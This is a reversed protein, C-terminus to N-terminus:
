YTRSVHRESLSGLLQDLTDAEACLQELQAPTFQRRDARAWTQELFHALSLDQGFYHSIVERAELSEIHGLYLKLNVRGPRILAPDPHDSTM